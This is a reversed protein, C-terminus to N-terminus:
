WLYREQLAKRDSDPYVGSDLLHEVTRTAFTDDTPVLHNRYDGAAAAFSPNAEPYVLAYKVWAWRGSHHDRMSLALLHDQWLQQTPKGTISGLTDPVFAKSATAVDLYRALKEPKPPKEAKAHEHYKTEIGIIGYRDDGLDLEIAADFATRNGLLTEDDRGPSWELYVNSVTGPADPFWTNVAQQALDRDAWLPGFLNFCMPMSSLLDCWLRPCNLMQHKQPHAVRHTAASKAAESLLNARTALATDYDIRSGNPVAGRGTKVREPNYPNTGPPIGRAERWRCQHLRASQKFATTEPSRPVRDATPFWCSAAKLEQESPAPLDNM